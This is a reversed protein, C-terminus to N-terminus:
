PNALLIEIDRNNAVLHRRLPEFSPWSLQYYTKSDGIKPFYEKARRKGFAKEIRARETPPYMPRKVPRMFRRREECDELLWAGRSWGNVFPMIEYQLHGVLKVELRLDYGDVCLAVSGFSHSLSARAFEWQAKTPLKREDTM